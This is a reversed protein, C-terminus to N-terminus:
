QLRLGNAVVAAAGRDMLSLEESKVARTLRWCTAAEEECCAPPAASVDDERAKTRLEGEGASALTPEPPRTAEVLMSSIFSATRSRVWASGFSM